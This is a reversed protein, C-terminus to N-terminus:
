LLLLTQRLISCTKFKRRELVIWHVTNLMPISSHYQLSVKIPKIPQAIIEAELKVVNTLVVHIITEKM